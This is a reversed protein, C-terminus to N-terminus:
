KRSLIYFANLSVLVNINIILAFLSTSDDFVALGIFLDDIISFYGM